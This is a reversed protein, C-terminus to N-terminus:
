ARNDEVKVRFTVRTGKGPAATLEFTGGIEAMRKSMGALGHHRDPAIASHNADLAPTFGCGDDEITLEFTHDQVSLQLRVETADAHKIANNLAEKAALFVNHRFSSPLTWAPLEVPIQIRARVGAAQLFDEAFDTLYSLLSELTDHQPNVAWVIEDLQMTLRVAMTRLRETEQWAPSEPKLKEHATQSVLSIQTLSAGLDDHIDQAIRVREHEMQRRSELMQMRLNLRRHAFIWVLVAIGVTIALAVPVVFGPRKWWPGPIIIGFKFENGLPEGFATLSQLRFTYEGPAVPDLVARNRGGIGVSYAEKWRIELTEGPKVYNGLGSDASWFASSLVDDDQIALANGEAPPPLKILSALHPKMGRRTWHYLPGELQGEGPPKEFTPDPWINRPRGDERTRMIQLGTIAATGLVTREESILFMKLREAGEPIQIRATRERFLSNEPRGGWGDSEGQMPFTAFSLINNSGGQFIIWFDMEGGAEKWQSNYGDLKTRFRIPQSAVEDRPAFSIEIREPKSLRLDPPINKRATLEGFLPVGGVRVVLIRVLSDNTSAFAITTTALMIIQALLRFRRRGSSPWSFMVVTIKGDM